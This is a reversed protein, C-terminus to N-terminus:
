KKSETKIKLSKVFKKAGQEDSFIGELQAEYAKDIIGSFAPSPKYGMKILMEGDIIAKPLQQQKKFEEYEKKLFDWTSLDKHSAMIDIYNLDLEKKFVANAIILKLRGKKIEQAKGIRMHDKVIYAVDDIIKNPLRLRTLIKRTLKEGEVDHGNFRIRDNKDTPMTITPPKGVDHLLVAWMLIIDRDRIEKAAVDLSLMTHTWVDGEPHFEPPQPVDRMACLEPLIKKLIGIEYLVNVAVSPYQTMLIKELEDRLREVSIGKLPDKIKFIAEYTERDVSFNLQSIFRACRIIRLRDEEFREVPNGVARIVADHIDDLGGVYDYLKSEMPEWFLANITFDRRMADEKPNSFTVFSPHRGDEYPADKRFTSVEFDKGDVNVVCVGFKEGVLYVKEFITKILEPTASTTIDIEHPQIGMLVDRVCGGVFFAVHGNQKLKDIIYIAKSYVDPSFANIDFKYNLIQSKESM